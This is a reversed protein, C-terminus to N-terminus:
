VQRKKRRSRLLAWAAYVATLLGLSNGGFPGQPKVPALSACGGGHEPPKSEGANQRVPIAPLRPHTGRTTTEQALLIADRAQVLSASQIKKLSSYKKSTEILLEKIEFATLSTNVARMVGAIGAIVPAAMSTGQKKIYLNGWPGYGSYASLIGSTGGRGDAYDGPAAIQVTTRGYNSFGSLSLSVLTDTVSNYSPTASAVSLLSPINYNAPFYPVVDNNNAGQSDANGAAIALVVDNEYLKAFTDYLAQSYSNNGKAGWSANVVSAGRALAYELAVIASATSGSGDDGIFRVPLISVNQAAPFEAIAHDRITKVIGAVHTGHSSYDETGNGSRSIANAGYVDDVFGNRDDDVGTTGDLEALNPELASSLFPHESKTGTDIVAVISRSSSLSLPIEPDPTDSEFGMLDRLWPAQEFSSPWSSSDGLDGQPKWDINEEVYAVEPNNRLDAVEGASLDEAIVLETRPLVLGKKRALRSDKFKKLRTRKHDLSVAQAAFNDSAASEKKLRIIWTNAAFIDPSAVLGLFLFTGLSAKGTLFRAVDM